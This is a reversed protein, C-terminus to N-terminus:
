EFLAAKAGFQDVEGLHDIQFALSLQFLQTVDTTKEFSVTQDLVKTIRPAPVRFIVSEFKKNSL